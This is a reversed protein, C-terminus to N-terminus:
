MLFRKFQLIVETTKIKLLNPNLNSVELKIKVPTSIRYRPQLAESLMVLHEEACM